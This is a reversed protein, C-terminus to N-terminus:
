VRTNSNLENVIDLAFQVEEIYERINKIDVARYVLKAILPDSPRDNAVFVNSGIFSLYPSVFKNQKKFDIIKRMMSTTLVLRSHAAANSYVVFHEEFEPYDLRILPDRKRDILSSIKWLIGSKKSVDSPIIVTRAALTKDLKCVIFQGSFVTYYRTGHYFKKATVWSFKIQTTGIKGSVYRYGKYSLPKKELFMQSADFTDEPIYSNQSYTLNEGFFRIVKRIVRVEFEEDYKKRALKEALCWLGIWIVPVIILAELESGEEPRLLYFIVFISFGLSLIGAVKVIRAIKKRKEELYNLDNSLTYNYFQDLQRTNKM